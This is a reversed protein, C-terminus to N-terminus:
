NYFRSWSNESDWNNIDDGGFFFDPEQNQHYYEPADKPYMDDLSYDTQGIIPRNDYIAQGSVMNQGYSYIFAAAPNRSAPFGVRDEQYEDKIFGFGPLDWRATLQDRVDERRQGPLNTDGQAKAFTRFINPGMTRPWPAPYIQYLNGWPDFGVDIYSTGLGKVVERRLFAGDDTNLANRGERLLAYLGRTYIDMAARFQDPAADVGGQRSADGVVMGSPAGIEVHVSEPDFFEHLSNRGADTLMKSLALEIGEIESIARTMRARGIWGVINPVVISALIAIIAMVVLLEILTFGQKRNM